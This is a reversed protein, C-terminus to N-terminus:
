LEIANTDSLTWSTETTSTTVSYGISGEILGTGGFSISAQGTSTTSKQDYTHTWDAGFDIDGGNTKPTVYVSVWYDMTILMKDDYANFLALGEGTRQGSRLSNKTSDSNNYSYYSAANKNWYVGIVDYSAPKTESAQDFGYYAILRHFSEGGRRASTVWLEAEWADVSRTKIAQSPKELTVGLKSLNITAKDHDSNNRLYDVIFNDFEKNSMSNIQKKINEIGKTSLKSVDENSLNQLSLPSEAFASIPICLALVLSLAVLIKKM